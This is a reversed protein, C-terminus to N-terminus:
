DIISDVREMFNILNFAWQYAVTPPLSSPIEKILQSHVSPKEGPTTWSTILLYKMDNQIAETFRSLEYFFKYVIEGALDRSIGQSILEEFLFLAYIDDRDFIHKTGRGTAKQVSPIVYGLAIWEKLRARKIGYDEIDPTTFESKRM